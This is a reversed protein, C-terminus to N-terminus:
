RILGVDISLFMSFVQSTNHFVREPCPNKRTGISASSQFFMALSNSCLHFKGCTTSLSITTHICITVKSTCDLVLQEINRFWITYLVVWIHGHRINKQCIISKTKFWVEPGALPPPYLSVTIGTIKPM